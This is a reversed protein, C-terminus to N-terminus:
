ERESRPLRHRHVRGGTQIYRLHEYLVRGEPFLRNFRSDATEKGSCSLCGQLLIMMDYPVALTWTRGASLGSFPLRREESAQRHVPVPRCKLRHKKGKKLFRNRTISPSFSKPAHSSSPFLNFFLGSPKNKLRCNQASACFQQSRLPSIM